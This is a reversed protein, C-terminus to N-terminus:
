GKLLTAGSVIQERIEDPTGVVLVIQSNTEINSAHILNNKAYVSVPSISVILNPNIWFDTTSYYTDQKMQLNNENVVYAEVNLKKLKIM